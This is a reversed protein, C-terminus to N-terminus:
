SLKCSLCKACVVMCLCGFIPLFFCHIYIIPTFKSNLECSSLFYHVIHAHFLIMLPMAAMAIFYIIKSTYKAQGSLFTVSFENMNHDRFYNSVSTSDIAGIKENLVLSIHSSGPNIIESYLDIDRIKVNFFSEFKIKEQQNMIYYGDIWTSSTFASGVSIIIFYLSAMSFMFEGITEHKRRDIDNLILHDQRLMVDLWTRIAKIKLFKWYFDIFIEINRPQKDM